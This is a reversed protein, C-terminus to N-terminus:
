NSVKKCTYETEFYFGTSYQDYYIEGQHLVFSKKDWKWNLDFYRSDGSEYRFQMRNSSAELNITGAEYSIEEGNLIYSGAPIFMKGNGNKDFQITAYHPKNISSPSGFNSNAWHLDTLTVDWRGKLIRDTRKEKNCGSLLTALLLFVIIQKM